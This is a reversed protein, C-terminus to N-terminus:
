GVGLVLLWIAVNQTAFAAVTLVHFVEHFGLVRPAPNPRRTAYVLAGLSYLGGGILALVVAPLGAGALLQPLIMVATWGLGLYLILFPWRPAPIWLARLLIGACAVSWVVALVVARTTGELGLIVFPTYTGAIIAFIGAHDLRQLILRRRGSWPMLHYAASAAFLACASAAYLAVAMRAGGGPALAVLVIGAALALPLAGAHVVGRLLPREPDAPSPM